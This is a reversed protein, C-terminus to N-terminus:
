KFFEEFGDDAAAPQGTGNEKIHDIIKDIFRIQLEYHAFMNEFHLHAIGKVEVYQEKTKLGERLSELEEELLARQESLAEISEEPSLESLFSVAAYLQGPLVISKERLNDKVLRKFETLGKETIKYIAKIRHGTKELSDVEVLGEKDMKKLAHYISGPLVGAWVDTQSTQLVQQIEYGSLPRIKLMGLLILRVM